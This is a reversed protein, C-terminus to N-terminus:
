KLPSGFVETATRYYLSSLVKATIAWDATTCRELHREVTLRRSDAKTIRAARHHASRGRELNRAATGDANSEHGCSCCSFKSQSRRSAKAVFGRGSCTQTCDAPNVKSFIVGFRERRDKLKGQVVKRGSRALVRNLGRSLGPATFDLKEIVVHAPRKLQAFWARALIDGDQTAFM